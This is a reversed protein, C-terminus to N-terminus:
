YQIKLGKEKYFQEAGPHYPIPSGIVAKELTLEKAIKHGAVLEDLHEFLVRVIDYALKKDMKEHCVLYNGASVTSVDRDVGSYTNAPCTIKFYIPGYKAKLKPVADGHDILAIKVGPTAALDMVSATPIGGVWFYADIKGDKLAGASETASLRDRTVEKEPDIGYAELVRCAVVETASGPAGTSIRRGKLDAVSKIGKDARCIVHTVSAYLSALNRMPIKEKFMGQGEHGAFGVDGLMLALDAKQAGLLRANDVSAATVEATAEVNPLYKSIVNAMVGGYPYWVGGTGGTAISIRVTKDAWSVGPSGFFVISFFCATVMALGFMFVSRRAGRARSQKM